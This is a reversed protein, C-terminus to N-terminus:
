EDIIQKILLIINWVEKERERKKNKKKQKEREREREREWYYNWRLFPKFHSSPYIYSSINNNIIIVNIVTMTM